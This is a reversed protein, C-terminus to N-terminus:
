FELDGKNNDLGSSDGLELKSENAVWGDDTAVCKGHLYYKKGTSNLKVAYTDEKPTWWETLDDGYVLKTNKGMNWGCGIKDTTDVSTANSVINNGDNKNCKGEVVGGSSAKLEKCSADIDSDVSKSWYVSTTVTGTAAATGALSLALLAASARAARHRTTDM